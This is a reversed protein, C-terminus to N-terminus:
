MAGVLVYFKQKVHSGCFTDEWWKKKGKSVEWMTEKPVLPYQPGKPHPYPSSYLVHQSQIYYGFDDRYLHSPPLM